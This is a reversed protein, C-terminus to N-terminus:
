DGGQSSRVRFAATRPERRENRHLRVVPSRHPATLRDSFSSWSCRTPQV